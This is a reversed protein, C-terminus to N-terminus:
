TTLNKALFHVYMDPTEAIVPIRNWRLSSANSGSQKLILVYKTCVFGTRAEKLLQGKQANHCSCSANVCPECELSLLSVRFPNGLPDPSSKATSMAVSTLSSSFCGSMYSFVGRSVKEPQVLWFPLQCPWGHSRILEFFSVPVVGSIYQWSPTRPLRGSAAPLSRLICRCQWLISLPFKLLFERKDQMKLTGSTLPRPLGAQGLTYFFYSSLTSYYYKHSTCIHTRHVPILGDQLWPLTCTYFM